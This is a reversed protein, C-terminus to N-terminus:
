ANELIDRYQSKESKKKGNNSQSLPNESSFACLYLSMEDCLILM